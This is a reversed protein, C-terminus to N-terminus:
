GTQEQVTASALGLVARKKRRVAIPTKRSMCCESKGGASIWFILDATPGVSKSDSELIAAYKLMGTTM